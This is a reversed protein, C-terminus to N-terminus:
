TKTFTHHNQCFQHAFHWKRDTVEVFAYPPFESLFFQKQVFVCPNRDINPFHQFLCSLLSQMVTVQQKEHTHLSYFVSVPRRWLLPEKWGSWHQSISPNGEAGDEMQIERDIYSIASQGSKQCYQKGQRASACSLSLELGSKRRKSNDYFNGQTAIRNMKIQFTNHKGNHKDPQPSRHTISKM